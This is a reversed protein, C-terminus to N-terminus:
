YKKKGNRVIATRKVKGYFIESLHFREGGDCKYQPLPFYFKSEKLMELSLTTTDTMSKQISALDIKEPEKPIRYGPTKHGSVYYFLDAFIVKNIQAQQLAENGEAKIGDKVYYLSAVEGNPRATVAVDWERNSNVYGFFYYYISNAIGPDKPFFNFRVERRFVLGDLPPFNQVADDISMMPQSDQTLKVNQLFIPSGDSGKYSLTCAPERFKQEITQKTDQAFAQQYGLGAFVVASYFLTKFKNHLM